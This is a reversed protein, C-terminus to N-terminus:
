KFLLLNKRVARRYHKPSAQKFVSLSWGRAVVESQPKHKKHQLMHKFEHLFTVLSFKPMEIQNLVHNYCGRGAQLRVSQEDVVLTPVTVKYIECLKKLLTEYKTMLEERTGKWAKKNLLFDRVLLITAKKIHNYNESYTKMKEEKREM